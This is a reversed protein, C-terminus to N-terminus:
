EKSICVYEFLRKGYKTEKHKIDFYKLLLNEWWTDNEIITHLQVGNIIDSHNAICLICIKSTKSCMEIVKEIFNKDLHEFVDTCTLIDYTKTCIKKRDSENSLDAQIFNYVDENHFKKLDVSTIEIPSLINKKLLSILQGRGSGIDILNYKEPLLKQSISININEIVFDYQIHHANSYDNNQFCKSYINIYDM